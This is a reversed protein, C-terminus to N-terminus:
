YIRFCKIKYNQNKSNDKYDKYEFTITNNKIDIIRNNSIAIRFAYRGIYEIVNEPSGKIQNSKGFELTYKM